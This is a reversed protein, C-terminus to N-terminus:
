RLEHLKLLRRKARTFAGVLEFYKEYFVSLHEVLFLVHPM